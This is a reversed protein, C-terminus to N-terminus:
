LWVLIYSETKKERSQFNNHLAYHLSCFFKLPYKTLFVVTSVYVCRVALQNTSRWILIVPDMMDVGIEFCGASLVSILIGGVLASVRVNCSWNDTTNEEQNKLLIELSSTIRPVLFSAEAVQSQKKPCVVRTNRLISRPSATPSTM